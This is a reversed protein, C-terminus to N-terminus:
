RKCDFETLLMIHQLDSILAHGETETLLRAHTVGLIADLSSSQGDLPLESTERLSTLGDEPLDIHTTGVEDRDEFAVVALYEGETLAVTGLRKKKHVYPQLEIFARVGYIVRPNTISQQYDKVIDKLKKDTVPTLRHLNM